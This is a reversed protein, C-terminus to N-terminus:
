CNLRSVKSFNKKSIKVVKGDYKYDRDALVAEELEVGEIYMNLEYRKNDLNAVQIEVKKRGAKIQKKFM